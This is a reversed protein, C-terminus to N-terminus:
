IEQIRNGKGDYKKNGCLLLIGEVFSWIGSVCMCVIGLFFLLATIIILAPNLTAIGTVTGVIFFIYTLFFFVTLSLQLVAKKTFKLYFNHVGLAGLFIGLLGAALASKDGVPEREPAVPALNVGCETCYVAYPNTQKGCNYCYESGKGVPVGCKMCITANENIENGCARCYM